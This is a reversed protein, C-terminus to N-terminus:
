ESGDRAEKTPEYFESLENKVCRLERELEDRKEVEEHYGKRWRMEEAKHFKIAEELGKVSGRLLMNEEELATLAEFVNKVDFHSVHTISALNIRAADVKDKLTKEPM